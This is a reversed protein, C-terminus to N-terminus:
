FTIRDGPVIGNDIFWGRNTELAYRAKGISGIPELSNPTMDEINLITGVNNIFAISLPINTNKM